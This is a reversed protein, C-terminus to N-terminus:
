PGAMARDASELVRVVDVGLALSSHSVADSRVAREFAEVARRLPPEAAVPIPLYRAGTRRTLRDPALDDYVYVCSGDDVELRRRKRALANGVTMDATTGSDFRLALDVILRDGPGSVRPTVEQSAPRSRALALAMAVDHPGWDWLASVPRGFPGWSGGASRIRLPGPGIRQQLGQFALSFLHTHDVVVLTRAARAAAALHEADALSTALPKEVLV